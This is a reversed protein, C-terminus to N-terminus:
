KPNRLKVPPQVPEYSDVNTLIGCQQFDSGHSLDDERLNVALWVSYGNVRQISSVGICTSQRVTFVLIFYLMINCKM